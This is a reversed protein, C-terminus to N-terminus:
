HGQCRAVCASFAEACATHCATTSCRAHCATGYTESCGLVCRSFDNYSLLEMSPKDQCCEVVAAYGFTEGGAIQRELPWQYRDVATHNYRNAECSKTFTDIDNQVHTRAYEKSHECQTDSESGWCTALYAPNSLRISTTGNPCNGAFAVIALILTLGLELFLRRKM